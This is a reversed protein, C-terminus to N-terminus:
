HRDKAGTQSRALVDAPNTAADIKEFRIDIGRNIRGRMWDRYQQTHKTKAKWESTVWLEVGDYDYAIIICKYGANMAVKVAEMAAKMEGLVQRQNDHNPISDFGILSQDDSVYAWGVKDPNNASWSGDVSIRIIM